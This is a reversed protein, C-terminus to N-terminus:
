VASALEHTRTTLDDIFTPSSKKLAGQAGLRVALNQNFSRSETILLVPTTKDFARIRRCAEEGTGDPLFYELFIMSFGGERAKEVADSITAANVFEFDPLALTLLECFDKDDEVCLIRKMNKGM